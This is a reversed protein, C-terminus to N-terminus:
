EKGGKGNYIMDPSMYAMIYYPIFFGYWMPYARIWFNALSLALMAIFARKDPGKYMALIYFLYTLIFGVLGHEYIYVRYGANGFEDKPMDRGFLIDGSHLFSDFEAEFWETVRNNGQIGDGTENVELRMVIAQNLMNDGQKYVFSLAVIAALIGAGAVLKPFIHKRDIWMHLIITIVLLGYAALSFSLLLAIILLLNYWKKWQGKQTALLLVIMTGMHGPELFFAHFRPLILFLNRDDLLFFPYKEYYYLQYEVAHHPLNIGVLYLVFFGLSISVLIALVKCLLTALKSLYQTNIRFLSLFIVIHFFCLIYAIIGSNVTLCRYFLVIACSITPILFDRRSFPSEKMSNGILMALLCMGTALIPYVSEIAWTFSARMSCFVALIMALNFLAIVVFHKDWHLWKRLDIQLAQRFSKMSIYRLSKIM